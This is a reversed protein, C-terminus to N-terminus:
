HYVVHAAANVQELISSGPMIVAEGFRMPTAVDDLWVEIVM